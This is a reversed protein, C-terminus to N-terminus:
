KCGRTEEEDDTRLRREYKSDDNISGRERERERLINVM